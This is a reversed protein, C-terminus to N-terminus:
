RWREGKATVYQRWVQDWPVVAAIVVVVACSSVVAGMAGGMEGALATPLAVAALWIVKWLVELLLVPLMRIPYRLGLLTLLSMATLICAVVGEFVPMREIHNFFLPWKVIILGVTMFAYGFRLIHLRYLPLEPGTAGTLKPARATDNTVM